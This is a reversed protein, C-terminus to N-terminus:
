LPNPDVPPPWPERIDAPAGYPSAGFRALCDEGRNPDSQPWNDYSFRCFECNTMCAVAHAAALARRPKYHRKNTEM